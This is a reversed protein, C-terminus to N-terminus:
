TFKPVPTAKDLCLSLNLVGNKIERINTYMLDLSGAAGSDVQEMEQVTGSFRSDAKEFVSKLKDKSYKIQLVEFWTVVNNIIGSDWSYPMTDISLVTNEVTNKCNLIADSVSSVTSQSYDHRSM